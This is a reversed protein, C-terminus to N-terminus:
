RGLLYKYSHFKLYIFQKVEIVCLRDSIAFDCENASFAM